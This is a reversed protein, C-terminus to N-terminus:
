KTVSTQFGWTTPMEHRPQQIPTSLFGNVVQQFQDMRLPKELVVEAQVLEANAGISPNRLATVLIVPVRALRSVGKIRACLDLGSLHPMEIDLVIVEPTHHKLYELVEVGDEASVLEHAESTLAMEMLRLHGRNDDAILITPKSM